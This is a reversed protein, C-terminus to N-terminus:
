KLINSIIKIIQSNPSSFPYCFKYCAEKQKKNLIQIKKKDKIFKLSKKLISLNECHFSGGMIKYMDDEYQTDLINYSIIPKKLLMILFGITSQKQLLVYSSLIINANFEEDGKGYIIKCNKYDKGLGYRIKAINEKRTKPHLTLLFYFNNQVKSIENIVLSIEKIKTEDYESYSLFFTYINKKYNVGLNLLLEKRKKKNWNKKIKFVNEYNPMGAVYINRDTLNSQNCLTRYNKKITHGPVILNKASGLLRDKPAYGMLKDFLLFKPKNKKKYYNLTEKLHMFETTVYIVVSPMFLGICYFCPKQDNPLIVLNYKKKLRLSWIYSFVWLIFIFFINGSRNILFKILNPGFIINVRKNNLFKKKVENDLTLFTVDFNEESLKQGLTYLYNYLYYDYFLPILIKNKM